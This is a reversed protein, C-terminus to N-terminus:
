DAVHTDFSQNSRLLLIAVGRWRQRTLVGAAQPGIYGLEGPLSCVVTSRTEETGAFDSRAASSGTRIM